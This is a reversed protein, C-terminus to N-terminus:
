DGADISIECTSEEDWETLIELEIEDDEDDEIYSSLLYMQIKECEYTGNYEDPIDILYSNDSDEGFTQNFVEGISM